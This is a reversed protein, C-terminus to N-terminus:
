ADAAASEQAFRALAIAFSLLVPGVFLGLIGFAAVGGIAGIFIALTSVEAGRATLLPRLLNEALWLFGTWCGMFVAGGWRGAFALYLTAPVLVLASGTPLFACIMGLVGFVVPSPLGALAFGVGVIIGQIVATASSGFVVARTVEGLYQLLRERRTASAPILRTAQSLLARGDRLLFFLVFLMMFLGIITGAVGLALSGGTAAAGRLVRQVGDSAWDQVQAASLSANDRLWVVLRGVGPLAAARNVLEAASFNQSQVTELVRGVQRAFVAGLTFLPLLVCLPTLVTLLGAALAARGRLARRLRQQLPDLLFALVIAWGIVSLLPELVRYVAYGLVLAIGVQFCRRYFGSHM